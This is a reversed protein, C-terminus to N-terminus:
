VSVLDFLVFSDIILGQGSCPSHEMSPEQYSLHSSWAINDRDRQKFDMQAVDIDMDPEPSIHCNLFSIEASCLGAGTLSKDAIIRNLGIYLYASPKNYPAENLSSSECKESVESPKSFTFLYKNNYYISTNRELNDLRFWKESVYLVIKTKPYIYSQTENIVLLKALDMSRDDISVGQDCLSLSSMFYNLNTENAYLESNHM